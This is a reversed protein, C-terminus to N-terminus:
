QKTIKFENMDVRYQYTECCSKRPMRSYIYTGCRTFGRSLLKEYDDTRLKTSGCSVKYYELDKEKGRFGKCYGCEPAGYKDDDSIVRTMFISTRNFALEPKSPPEPIPEEEEEKEQNQDPDEESKEM